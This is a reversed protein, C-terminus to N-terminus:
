GSWQHDLWGTEVQRQAHSLAPLAIVARVMHGAPAEHRSQLRTIGITTISAPTM